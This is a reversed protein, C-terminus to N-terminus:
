QNDGELNSIIVICYWNETEKYIISVGDSKKLVEVNTYDTSDHALEVEREICRDMTDLRVLTSSSSLLTDGDKSYTLDTKLKREM